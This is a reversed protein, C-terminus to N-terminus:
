VIIVGVLSTTRRLRKVMGKTGLHSKIKAAARIQRASKIDNAAACNQVGYEQMASDSLHSTKM